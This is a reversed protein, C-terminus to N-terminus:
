YTAASNVSITYTRPGIVGGFLNTATGSAQGTLISNNWTFTPNIGTANSQAWASLNSQFVTGATTIPDGGSNSAIVGALVSSDLANQMDSRTSNGMSYTVGAGVAGVLLPLVVASTIAVNGGNDAEFRRLVQGVTTALRRLTRGPKAVSQNRLPMAAEM